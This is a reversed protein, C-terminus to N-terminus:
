DTWYEVIKTLKIKNKTILSQWTSIDQETDDM